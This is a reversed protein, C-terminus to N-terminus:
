VPYSRRRADTLVRDGDAVVRGGRYADGLDELCRAPDDGTVAGVAEM